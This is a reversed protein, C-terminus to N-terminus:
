YGEGSDTKRQNETGIWNAIPSPTTMPPTLLPPLPPKPTVVALQWGVNLMWMWCRVDVAGFKEVLGSSGLSVQRKGRMETQGGKAIVGKDVGRPATSSQTESDYNGMLKNARQRWKSRFPKCVRDWFPNGKHLHSM